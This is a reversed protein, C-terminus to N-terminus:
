LVLLAFPNWSTFLALLYGAALFPVFPVEIGMTPGGRRLVLVVIGIVAGIWFSFVLGSIAVPGVLISLALAVPADGLGMARGRSAVFLLVFLLGIIGAVMLAVSLTALDYATCAYAAAVVVLLMSAAPPVITHRLDYLVIFLLISLAALMFLLPVTIGLLLYSVVFLVGLVAETLAYRVPLPVRCSRCRGGTLLWSLVPVLDRTDLTRNCSDCRSRGTLFSQGTQYREAIVGTFSAVVAGAAFFAILELMNTTYTITAEYFCLAGRM